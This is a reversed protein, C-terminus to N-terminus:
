QQLSMNQEIKEFEEKSVHSHYYHGSEPLGHRHLPAPPQPIKSKRLKEHFINTHDAFGLADVAEEWCASLVMIAAAFAAIRTISGIKM